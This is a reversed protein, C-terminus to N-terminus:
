GARVAGGSRTARSRGGVVGGSRERARIRSRAPIDHPMSATPPQEAPTTRMAILEDLLSLMTAHTADTPRGLTRILYLAITEPCDDAEPAWRLWPKRAVHVRAVELARLARRRELAYGERTGVCESAYRYLDQRRRDNTVDNYVRMISGVIPCVSLPRDSFREGALM